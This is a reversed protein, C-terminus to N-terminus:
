EDTSSYSGCATCRILLNRVQGEEAHMLVTGCKGCTHDITHTSAILVPPASVVHRSGPAAVVTLAVSSNPKSSQNV